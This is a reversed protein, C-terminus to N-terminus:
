LIIFLYNTNLKKTTWKQRKASDESEDM